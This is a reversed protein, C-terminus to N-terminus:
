QLPPGSPVGPNLPWENSGQISPGTMLVGLTSSSGQISPGSVLGRSHQLWENISGGQYQVKQFRGLGHGPQVGVM